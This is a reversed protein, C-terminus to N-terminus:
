HGSAEQLLSEWTRMIKPEGFRSRVELAKRSMEERRRPDELLDIVTECWLIEDEEPLIVGDRGQSIVDRPGHHFDTVVPVLGYAMAEILVMPMGEWRSTMVFVQARSYWESVNGARGPLLVQHQLGLDFIKTELDKRLPGEGLIVLRLSSRESALKSFREILIDFGKARVLRGVALLVESEPSVVDNPHIRPSYDVLPFSLINPIVKIPTAGCIPRLEKASGVTQTMVLALRRYAWPRLSGWFKGRVSRSPINRECGVIRMGSGLCALVAEISMNAQIAILVDPKSHGSVARRLVKLRSFVRVLSHSSVVGESALSILNVRPDPHYEVKHLPEMTLLRVEHGAKAWASSLNSAAREAGGGRLSSVLVDLKM